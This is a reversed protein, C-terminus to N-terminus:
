RGDTDGAGGYTGSIITVAASCFWNPFLLWQEIRLFLEANLRLSVGGTIEGVSWWWLNAPNM